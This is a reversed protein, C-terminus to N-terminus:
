FPARIEGEKTAQEAQSVPAGSSSGAENREPPKYWFRTMGNRKEVKTCGLKRLAVGIRTQLDRTLKSADLMLGEMAATAISFDAVQSYVWDHLADVYSEQQERKLQEPDFLSKQEAKEPWYRKGAEYYAMAESFLQERAEVLGEVDLTGVSVPWFRRGGTPDKNWEWENTTGSFVLRRPLKVFSTAFPIRFEDFRRSLFAKQRKEDSRAMAGMEQIEFLWKGQIAMMSDKNHLDLESDGFWDDGVLAALITSKREGQEGELILSYDFKCGPKLARAVMGMLFWGGALRLYEKQDASTPVAGVYRELWSGIRKVGDWAPLGRLWQVLPNFMHNRAVADVAQAVIEKGPAFRYRRTIWIALHTTDQDGWEGAEGTVYPAPRLKVVKQAFEDFAIIGQWAADNTLVDYVNAVCREIDGRQTTLLRRYWDNPGEEERGAAANNPPSTTEPPSDAPPEWLTLNGRLWADDTERDVHGLQGAGVMDAVDWGNPVEGPQPIKVLWVKCDLEHLREAIKLAAKVGPQKSEPLFPKSLPDVGQAKEDKSLKERQADCDPWIIVKRGALPSWDAKHESNTGGPWTVAVLGTFMSSAIEKCKEGEVVLVTAEPSEALVDLGYLPRPEGFHMWRWMSKGTGAHTAWCIPLVAKGGDSTKFRYVYGLTAGDADRYHWVREPLGRKVHAADVSPADAPATRQPVWETVPKRPAEADAAAKASKSTKEAPPTASNPPMAARSGGGMRPPLEIGLEGAVEYAAAIQDGDHFLYACLSILDNGAADDAFDGWRGTVTNISFSGEKSDSRTPNVSKYEPGDDKHGNPLWKALLTDVAGLARDALLAFDIKERRGGGAKGGRSAM